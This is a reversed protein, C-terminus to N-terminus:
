KEEKVTYWNVGQKTGEYHAKKILGSGILRKVAVKVQKHTLYGLNQSMERISESMWHEGHKKYEMNKLNDAVRACIYRYIIASNIGLEKAIVPCFVHVYKSPKIM